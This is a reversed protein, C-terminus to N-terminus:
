YFAANYTREKKTRETSQKWCYNKLGRCMHPINFRYTSGFVTETKAANKIGVTRLRYLVELEVCYRFVDYRRKPRRTLKFTIWIGAYVSCFLRVHKRKYPGPGLWIRPRDRVNGSVSHAIDYIAGNVHRHAQCSSNAAEAITLKSLLLPFM